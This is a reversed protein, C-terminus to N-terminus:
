LQMIPIFKGQVVGAVTSKSTQVITKRLQKGGHSQSYIELKKLCARQKSLDRSTFNGYKTSVITNTTNGTLNTEQHVRIQLRKKNWFFNWQDDTKNSLKRSCIQSSMRSTDQRLKSILNGTNRLSSSKEKPIRCSGLSGTGSSSTKADKDKKDKNGFGDKQLSKNSSNISSQRNSNFSPKKSMQDLYVTSMVFLDKELQCNQVSGNDKELDFYAVQSSIESRIDINKVIRPSGLDENSNPELPILVRHESQVPGDNEPTTSGSTHSIDVINYAAQLLGFLKDFRSKFSEEIGFLKMEQEATKSSRKKYKSTSKTCTRTM